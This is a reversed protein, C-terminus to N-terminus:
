LEVKIVDTCQVSGSQIRDVLGVRQDIGVTQAPGFSMVLESKTNVNAGKLCDAWQAEIASIIVSRELEIRGIACAQECTNVESVEEETQGVLGEVINHLLVVVAARDVIMEKGLILPPCSLVKREAVADTVFEM